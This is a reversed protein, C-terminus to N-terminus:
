KDHPQGYWPHEETPLYPWDSKKNLSNIAKDYTEKTLFMGGLDNGGNIAYFHYTSNELQRNVIDFLAFTANGWNQGESMDMKPSYIIYTKGQSTVKYSGEASDLEESVEAPVPIHKQLVPLVDKKYLEGIRGEGLEEADLLIMDDYNLTYAKKSQEKHQKKSCTTILAVLAVIGWIIYDM